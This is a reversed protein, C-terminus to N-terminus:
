GTFSFTQICRYPYVAYAKKQVDIIHNRLEEDGVIKTQSKFFDAEEESLSLVSPDLTPNYVSMPPSALVAPSM